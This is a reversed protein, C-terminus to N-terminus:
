YIFYLPMGFWGLQTNSNILVAILRQFLLLAYQSPAPSVYGTEFEYFFSHICPSVM